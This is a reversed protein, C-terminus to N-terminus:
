EVVKIRTSFTDAMIFVGERRIQACSKKAKFFFDGFSNLKGRTYPKTSSKGVFVKFEKSNLTLPGDIDIFIVKGRM